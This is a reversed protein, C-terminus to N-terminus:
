LKSNMRKKLKLPFKIKDIEYKSKSYQSIEQKTYYESIQDVEGLVENLADLICFLVFETTESMSMRLCILDSTLGRPIDYKNKLSDYVENCTESNLAVYSCIDTLRKELVERSRKM